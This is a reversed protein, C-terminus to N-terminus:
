KVEYDVRVGFVCIESFSDSLSVETESQLSSKSYTKMIMMYVM